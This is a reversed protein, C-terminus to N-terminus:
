IEESNLLYYNPIYLRDISRFWNIKGFAYENLYDIAMDWMTGDYIKMQHNLLSIFIEKEENNLIMNEDFGTIYIPTIMSIRCLKIINHRDNEFRMFKFFPDVIFNPNEFLGTTITFNSNNAKYSSILIEMYAMNENLNNNCYEM